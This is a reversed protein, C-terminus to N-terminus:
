WGRGGHERRQRDAVAGVDMRAGRQGLDDVPQPGVGAGQVRGGPRDRGPQPQRFRHHVLQPVGARPRNQRLGEAIQVEDAVREVGERLAVEVLLADLLVDVARRPRVGRPQLVRRLAGADQAFQQRVAHLAAERRDRQAVGRVGALPELRRADRVEQFQRPPQVVEMILGAADHPQGHFRLRAADQLGHRLRAVEEPPQELRRVRRAQRLRGGPVHADAVVDAVVRHLELVGEVADAPVAVGAHPDVLDVDAACQLGVRRVRRLPGRQRRKRLRPVQVLRERPGAGALHGADEVQGRLEAVGRRIPERLRGDPPRM